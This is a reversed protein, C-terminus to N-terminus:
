AEAMSRMRHMAREIACQVQRPAMGMTRSLDRITAPTKEDLGFRRIVLAREDSPMNQLMSRVRTTNSLTEEVSTVPQDHGALPTPADHGPQPQDISIVSAGRRELATHVEAVSLKAIKAIETASPRQGTTSEIQRAAAWVRNLKAQVRGSVRITQRTDRAAHRMAHRIWTAAYAAFPTGTASNYSRAAQLLAIAGESMLEDAGIMRTSCLRAIREILPLCTEILQRQADVSGARVRSVLHLCTTQDIHASLTQRVISEAPVNATTM